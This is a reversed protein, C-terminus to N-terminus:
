YRLRMDLILRILINKGVQFKFKKESKVEAIEIKKKELLKISFFMYINVSRYKESCKFRSSIFTFAEGELREVTRLGQDRSNIETLYISNLFLIDKSLHIM